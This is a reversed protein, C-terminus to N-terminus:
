DTPGNPIQSNDRTLRRQDADYFLCYARNRNDLAICTRFYGPSLRVTNASDLNRHVEPPAKTLVHERVARANAATDETESVVVPRAAAGAALLGLVGALLLATATRDLVVEPPPGPELGAASAQQQRVVLRRALWPAAAGLLVLNGLAALLVAPILRVGTQIPPLANLILADLGTLAVFTPWQWAGRLRWRLRQRTWGGEFSMRGWPVPVSAPVTM